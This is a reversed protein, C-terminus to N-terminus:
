SYQCLWALLANETEIDKPYNGRTTARRGGILIKNTGTQGYEGIV